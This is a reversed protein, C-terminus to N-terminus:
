RKTVALYMIYISIVIFPLGWLFSYTSFPLVMATYTFEGTAQNVGSQISLGDINLYIGLLLIWLGSFFGFVIGRKEIISISLFIVWLILWILLVDLIM